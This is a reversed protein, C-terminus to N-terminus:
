LIQAALFIDSKHYLIVHLPYSRQCPFNIPSISFKNTFNQWYYLLMSFIHCCYQKVICFTSHHISYILIQFENTVKLSLILTTDRIVQLQLSVSTLLLCATYTSKHRSLLKQFSSLM